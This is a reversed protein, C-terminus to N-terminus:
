LHVRAARSACTSPPPVAQLSEPNQERSATRVEHGDGLRDALATEGARLDGDNQRVQGVGGAEFRRSLETQEGDGNWRRPALAGLVVGLDDSRQALMADIQDAQGSVHADDRRLKHAGEGVADQVDM